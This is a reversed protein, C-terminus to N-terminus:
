IIYSASHFKVSALCFECDQLSCADSCLLPRSPHCDNGPTTSDTLRGEDLSANAILNCEIKKDCLGRLRLQTLAKSLSRALNQIEKQRCPNLVKRVKKFRQHKKALFPVERKNDVLELVKGRDIRCNETAHLVSPIAQFISGSHM